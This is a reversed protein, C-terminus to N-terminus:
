PVVKAKWEDICINNQVLLSKINRRLGLCVHLFCYVKAEGKEKAEFEKIDRKKQGFTGFSPKYPKNEYPTLQPPHRGVSMAKQLLTHEKKLTENTIWCSAIISKIMEM